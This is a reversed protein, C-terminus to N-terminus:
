GLGAVCWLCRAGRRDCSRCVVSWHEACSEPGAHHGGGQNPVHSREHSERQSVTKCEGARPMLVTLMHNVRRLM